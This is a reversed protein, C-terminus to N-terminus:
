KKTRWTKGGYKNYAAIWDTAIAHQADPLSLKGACVLGHLKNELSDKIRANMPGCYPQPWLNAVDNAGGLELSILHDVECGAQCACYGEHDKVGYRAYVSTKMEESVSRVDRTTFTKACLQEKTIDTAVGPTLTPDPLTGAFVPSAALVLVLALTKM